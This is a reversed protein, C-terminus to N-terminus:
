NNLFFALDGLKLGATVHLITTEADTSYYQVFLPPALLDNLIRANLEDKKILWIELANVM